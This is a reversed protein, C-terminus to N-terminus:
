GAGERHGPDGLEAIVRELRMGRSAKVLLWDGPETHAVILAAAEAPTAAVHASGGTGARVQEAHEGLAIVPLGLSAALAGVAHHEDAATDGLELMDGVVAVARGTGRLEVLTELAARMSVPNANYCDLLVHRGAVDRLEGRMAAPRARELGRAAREPDVGVACAVALACAANMANHRGPLALRFSVQRGNLACTVDSGAPGAPVIRVVRVDAGEGAGFTIRRPARAAHAALRPDDAPLIACGYS